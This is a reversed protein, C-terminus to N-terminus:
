TQSEVDRGGTRSGRVARVRGIGVLGIEVVIADPVDTVVARVFVVGPLLVDIAVVNTINTVATANRRGDAIHILAADHIDRINRHKNIVLKDRQRREHAFRLPVDIEAADHIDAIQRDHDIVLKYGQCWQGFAGLCEGALRAVGRWAPFRCCGPMNM